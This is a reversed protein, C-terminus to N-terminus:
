RGQALARYPAAEAAMGFTEYLAALNQAAMAGGRGRVSGDLDDREGIELCRKWAYECIPLAEAAAREPNRSAWDLYLDGVVFWFDPSGDFRGAERDALARAEDHAGAAKLATIAGLV